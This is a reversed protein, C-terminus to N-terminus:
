NFNDIAEADSNWLLPTSLPTNNKMIISYTGHLLNDAHPVTLLITNTAIDNNAPSWAFTPTPTIIYGIIGSNITYNVYYAVHMATVGLM